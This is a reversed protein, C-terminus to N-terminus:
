TYDLSYVIEPNVRKHLLMSQCLSGNEQADLATKNM